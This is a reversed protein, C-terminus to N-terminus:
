RVLLPIQQIAAEAAKLGERMRRSAVAEAAAMVDAVATTEAEVAEDAAVAEAVAITREVAAVMRARRGARILAPAAM